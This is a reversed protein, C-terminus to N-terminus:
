DVVGCIYRCALEMGLKFNESELRCVEHEAEGLCENLLKNEKKLDRIQKKLEAETKM